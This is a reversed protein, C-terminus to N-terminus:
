QEGVDGPLFINFVELNSINAPCPTNTFKWWSNM